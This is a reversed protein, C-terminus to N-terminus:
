HHPQPQSDPQPQLAANKQEFFSPSQKNGASETVQKTPHLVEALTSISENKSSAPVCRKNVVCILEYKETTIKETASSIVETTLLMEITLLRETPCEEPKLIVPYKKEDFHNEIEDNENRKETVVSTIVIKTRAPYKGLKMKVSFPQLFDLPQIKEEAFIIVVPFTSNALIDALKGMSNISVGCFSFHLEISRSAKDIMAKALECVGDDGITNGWINLSCQTPSVIIAEALKKAGKHTMKNKPLSLVILPLVKALAAAGSDGIMNNFLYLVITDPKIHEKSSEIAKALETADADELKKKELHLSLPFGPPNKKIRAIALPIAGIRTMGNDGWLIPSIEYTATEIAEAFEIAMDDTIDDRRISVYIIEKPKASATLLSPRASNEERENYYKLFEAISSFNYSFDFIRM